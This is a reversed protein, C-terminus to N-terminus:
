KSDFLHSLDRDLLTEDGLNLEVLRRLSTLSDVDIHRCEIGINLDAQHVVVGEMVIMDGDRGLDLNLQCTKGQLAAVPQLLKVLAGKLAIDLLHAPHTDQGLLLQVEAHFSIRSFRRQDKDIAPKM